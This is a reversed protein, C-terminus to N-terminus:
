EKNDTNNKPEIPHISLALKQLAQDSFINLPSLSNYSFYFADTSYMEVKQYVDNFFELIYIAFSNPLAVVHVESIVTNTTGEKYFNIAATFVVSGDTKRLNFDAICDLISKTSAANM